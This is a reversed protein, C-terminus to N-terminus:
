MGDEVPTPVFLEKAYEEGYLVLLESDPDIDKITRYYINGRHQYAAVNQEAEDRACNVFRMWNSHATDQGDIWYPKAGKHRVQIFTYVTYQIYIYIYILIFSRGDIRALRM